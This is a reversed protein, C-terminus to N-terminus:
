PLLRQVREVLAPPCELCLERSSALVALQTSSAKTLTEGTKADRIVYDIRLRNEYEALTAKVVFDQSFTIPRVYKVRMDVIPWLHGSEEMEPYSYGILAMLRDRAAELYRPYHGHWVVRMSDIDGFLPTLPVEVWIM